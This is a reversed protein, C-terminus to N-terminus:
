RADGTKAALEQAKGAMGNAAAAYVTEEIASALPAIDLAALQRPRGLDKLAEGSEDSLAADIEDVLKSAWKRAGSSLFRAAANSALSSAAAVQPRSEASLAIQAPGNSLFGPAPAVAARTLKFGFTESMEEADAELGASHLNSVTESLVKLDKKEETEFAFEPAAKGPHNFRMWPAVLQANITDAVEVCDADKIDSRVESQADGGSLGASEGSSALQGLILKEIADEAYECLRFYIDGTNNSAQLLELETNQTFVAGGSSGFNRILQKIKNRENEWSQRDVKAVLFPMGYREIFGLLDKVNLNLFCHLWAITRILGARAPDGSPSRLRHEIVKDAPIEVDGADTLLMLSDPSEPSTYRLAHSPIFKFAFLSGGEGWVIENCSVGSLAAAAMNGILRRFTDLRRRGLPKSGAAKLQAQLEEAIAAAEASDDAPVIEWPVRQVAAARTELAHRVVHNREEIESCLKYLSLTDGQNALQMIRDIEDPTLHRGVDARARDSSSLVIALGREPAAPAATGSDEFLPTDFLARM